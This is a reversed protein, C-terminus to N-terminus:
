CCLCFWLLERCWHVLAHFNSQLIKFIHACTSSASCNSFAESHCKAILVGTPTSIWCVGSAPIERRQPVTHLMHPCMDRCTSSCLQAIPSTSTSLRQCLLTFAMTTPPLFLVDGRGAHRVCLATMSMRSTEMAVMLHSPLVLFHSCHLNHLCLEEKAQWPLLSLLHIYLSRQVFGCRSGTFLECHPTEHSRKFIWLMCHTPATSAPRMLVLLGLLHSFLKVTFGLSQRRFDSTAKRTDLHHLSSVLYVYYCSFTGRPTNSCLFCKGTQMERIRRQRFGKNSLEERLCGVEPKQWASVATPLCRIVAQM